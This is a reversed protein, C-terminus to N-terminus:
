RLGTAAELRGVAGADDVAVELGVVHEDGVLAGDLDEVEAEGAGGFVGAALLQGGGRSRRTCGSPLRSSAGSVRVPAMMPVGAYMAGSCCSPRGGGRLAVLEAEADAEVLAEVADVGEVAAREAASIAPTVVPRKLLGSRVALTGPQSRRTSTRPRATSGSLRQGDIAASSASSALSGAARALAPEGRAASAPKTPAPLKPAADM